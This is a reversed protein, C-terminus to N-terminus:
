ETRVPFQSLSLLGRRFQYMASLALREQVPGDCLSWAEGSSTWRLSLLGRRFQDMASLDLREQVPGDCLSWAEGSSASRLSSNRRVVLVVKSCPVLVCYIFVFLRFNRKRKLIRSCSAGINVLFWWHEKNYALVVIKLVRM